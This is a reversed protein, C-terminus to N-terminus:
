GHNEGINKVAALGQHLAASTAALGISVLCLSQWNMSSLAVKNIVQQDAFADANATLFVAVFSLVIPVLATPVRTPVKVASKFLSTLGFVTFVLVASNAFDM